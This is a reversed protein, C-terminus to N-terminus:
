TGARPIELNIDRAAFLEDNEYAELRGTIVFRDFEALQTVECHVRTRWDDRGTQITATFRGGARRSGDDYIWYRQESVSDIELGHEDIRYAGDDKRYIRTARREVVDYEIKRERSVPRLWTLELPPPLAPREFEPVPLRDPDGDFVPLVLETAALDVSLTMPDPAPWILPWAQTAISLRLRHGAPVRQVIDDLRVRCDFVEGPKLPVSTHEGQRHLLNLLGYSIRTVRGDPLVDSLSVVVQGTPTDAAGSLRLEPAGYLVLDRILPATEFVLSGGDDFRQDLPMEPGIGHPLWEGGFMGTTSPSCVSVTEGRTDSESAPLLGGGADLRWGLERQQRSPWRDDAIWRGPRERYEAQPPVSDQQWLLLPPERDIGNDVGKLWRDWWRVADQLFGIQPGPVAIHPYTHGWPGVLVRKPSRLGGAMRLIANSYADAWGCVAYVACDIDDYNDGVSAHRWYADRDQHAAWAELVFPSQEIRERWRDRWDENSVAPDPPRAMYTFYQTGWSLNAYLQCGGKYHIDDNFRDDTSDVTIIAKLSPPRHAALQLASFGGWSIGIMGTAGSCWPQRAIWELAALGDQQEQAVYEDMPIGNSDGSGRLELRISAYGHGAFWPHLAADRPATFDRHRFPVYEVIAPVPDAEADVPLWIRASLEIGDGVPIAIHPLVRIRRPFRTVVDFDDTAAAILNVM